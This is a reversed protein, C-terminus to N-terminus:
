EGYVEGLLCRFGPLVGEGDLADRAQLVRAAGDPRYVTTRKLRPNLVWVLQTGNSLYLQVKHEIDMIQDGPSVIEVALDPAFMAFGEPAKGGPLREARVFSVDPSLLDGSPLVFGASSGYAQGIPNEHLYKRILFFLNGGVFEHQIGAPTVKVEGEILEYKRGDRPAQYLDEVTAAQGPRAKVSELM